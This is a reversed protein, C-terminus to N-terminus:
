DQIRLIKLQEKIKAVEENLVAVKKDVDAKISVFSKSNAFFEVNNNLTAIEEQVASIRSRLSRTKNQVFDKEAPTGKLAGLEISLKMKQIEDEPLDSLKAIFVDTAKVFEDQIAKVSNRPVFGIAHFEDVLTDFELKQSSNTLRSIKGIVDQKLALNTAFEKENADFQASRKNFFYDCAMRFEQYVSENVAKPSQGIKKWEGQIKKIEEATNKFDESNKLNNVKEILALKKQQNRKRENDLEGFFTNKNAYFGRVLGWFTDNVEKKLEEPVLGLKKWENQLANMEETLSIWEKASTAQKEAYPAIKELLQKKAELNSDLQVKFAEVHATRKDRVQDTIAKFEQWLEESVEEPVPGVQKYQAHLDNLAHIAELTNEKELLGQAELIIEKKLSLNKDRDLSKLDFYISRFSYYRDLIAQYNANLEYYEAQSIQGIEKWKKQLEKIQNFTGPTEEGDVLARLDEVLQKKKHTNSIKQEDQLIKHKRRLESIDKLTDFFTKAENDLYEFGDKEGGEELFKQYAVDKEAYFVNEFAEKLDNLQSKGIAIASNTKIRLAEAILDSKSLNEYSYSQDVSEDEIFSLHNEQLLEGIEGQLKEEASM